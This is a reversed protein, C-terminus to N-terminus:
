PGALTQVGRSYRIGHISAADIEESEAKKSKEAELPHPRVMANLQAKTRRKRMVYEDCM